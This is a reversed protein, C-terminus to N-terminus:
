GDQVGEGSDVLSSMDPTQATPSGTAAPDGLTLALARRANALTASATGVAVHM